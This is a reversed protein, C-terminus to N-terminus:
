EGAYHISSHAAPDGDEVRDKFASEFIPVESCEDAVSGDADFVTIAYAFLRPEGEQPSANAESFGDPFRDFCDVLVPKALGLESPEVIISPEAASGEVLAGSLGTLDVAFLLTFAHANGDFTHETDLPPDIISEDSEGQRFGQAEVDFDIEQAGAEAEIPDVVCEFTGLPELGSFDTCVEGIPPVTLTLDTMTANSSQNEVEFRVWFDSGVPITPGPAEGASEWPGAPGETSISVTVALRPSTGALFDFAAAAIAASDFTDLEQATTTTADAGTTDTVTTETQTTGTPATTTTASSGGAQAVTTSTSTGAEGPAATTEVAEGTTETTTADGGSSCAAVGVALAAAFLM